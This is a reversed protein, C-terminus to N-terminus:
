KERIVCKGVKYTIFAAFFFLSSSISNAARLFSSTRSITLAIFFSDEPSFKSLQIVLIIGSLNDGSSEKKMAKVMDLVDENRLAALEILLEKNKKAADIVYLTLVHTM